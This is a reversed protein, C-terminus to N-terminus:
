RMLSYVNRQKKIKGYTDFNSPILYDQDGYKSAFVYFVHNKIRNEIKLIEKLIRTRVEFDFEDMKIFDQISAGNYNPINNSVNDAFLKSYGNILYYYSFNQFTKDRRHIKLKRTALLKVLAKRKRFPKS